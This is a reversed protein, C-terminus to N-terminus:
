VMEDKKAQGSMVNPLISLDETPPAPRQEVSLATPGNVSQEMRTLRQQLEGIEQMIWLQSDEKSACNVAEGNIGGERAEDLEKDQEINIRVVNGSPGSQSSTQGRPTRMKVKLRSLNSSNSLVRQVKKSAKESVGTADATSFFCRWTFAVLSCMVVVIITGLMDLPKLQLDEELRVESSPCQNVPKPYKMLAKAMGGSIREDTIAWSLSNSLGDRVPFVEPISLVPKGVSVYDCFKQKSQYWILSDQPEVLLDCEGDELGKFLSSMDVKRILIGAVRPTQDVLSDAISHLVCMKKNQKIADELNELLPQDASAVLFTATNATFSALVILIFFGYGIMFIRASTSRPRHAIAGSVCGLIAFYISKAIAAHPRKDPFDEDNRDRELFGVILGGYVIVGGIMIWLGDSFAQFPKRLTTIWDTKKEVKVILYLDQSFAPASLPAILRRETTDWFDGFCVDALGLAVDHVCATYSSTFRSLSVASVNQHVITTKFRQLSQFGFSIMQKLIPDSSEAELVGPWGVVPYSIYLKDWEGVEHIYDSEDYTNTNGCTAYSYYLGLKSKM